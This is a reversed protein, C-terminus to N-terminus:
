KMSRLAIEIEDPFFTMVAGDESKEFLCKSTFNEFFFNIIASAATNIDGNVHEALISATHESIKLSATMDGYYASTFVRKDRILDSTPAGVPNLFDSCIDNFEDITARFFERGENVRSEKFHEHILNEDSLCNHSYYSSAVKFPSPVGTANSIEKVRQELTRTTCGIKLLGPMCENTLAYIYGNFSLNEPQVREIVNTYTDARANIIPDSGGPSILDLVSEIHAAAEQDCEEFPKYKKQEQNM